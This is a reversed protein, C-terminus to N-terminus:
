ELMMSPDNLYESITKLLKAAAAGDFVAHDFNLAVRMVHHVSINDDDDVVPAKKM